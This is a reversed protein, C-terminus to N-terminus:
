PLVHYGTEELIFVKGQFTSESVSKLLRKMPPVIKEFWPPHIAIHITGSRHSPPYLMVNTFDSDRTVLIRNERRALRIVTGNTTGAPVRHADHGLQKLLRIVRVDVGEDVLFQM